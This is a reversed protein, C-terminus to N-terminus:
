GWTRHKEAVWEQGDYEEIQWDVDEPIEVVCPFTYEAGARTGLTEICEILKPDTRKDYDSYALGFGDWELGIYEYAEKSLSFGGYNKNIAIKRM